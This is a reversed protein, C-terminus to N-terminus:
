FNKGAYGSDARLTNGATNAGWQATIVLTTAATTDVTIDGSPADVGGLIAATPTMSLVQLVGRVTGTASVTKVTLEGEVRFAKNTQSSAPTTIAFTCITTGGVGGYRLRFTITSGTASNDVTGWVVVKYVSGVAPEGAGISYTHLVTETTVANITTTSTKGVTTGSVRVGSPLGHVGSSSDQHDRSAQFDGAGIGHTVVSGQAHAAAPRTCAGIGNGWGRTVNYPSAVTGAGSNVLVLEENSSGPEIRLAFPFNTIYPALTAGLVMQTDSSSVGGSSGTSGLLTTQPITDSYNRSSM